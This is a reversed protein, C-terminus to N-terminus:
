NFQLLNQKHLKEIMDVCVDIAGDYWETSRGMCQLRYYHDDSSDLSASPFVDLLAGLSWCPILYPDVNDWSCSPNLPEAIISYDKEKPTTTYHDDYDWYMDASEPSLGLKLLKKSQEISTYHKM